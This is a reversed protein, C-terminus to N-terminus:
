GCVCLWINMKKCERVCLCGRLIGIDFEDLNTGNSWSLMFGFSYTFNVLKSSLRMAQNYWPIILSSFLVRTADLTHPERNFDSNILLLNRSHQRIPQCCLQWWVFIMNSFPWGNIAVKDPFKTVLTKKQHQYQMSMSLLWTTNFIFFSHWWLAGFFQELTDRSKSKCKNYKNVYM